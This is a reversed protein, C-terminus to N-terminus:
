LLELDDPTSYQFACSLKFLVQGYKFKLVINSSNTCLISYPFYQPFCIFIVKKLEFKNFHEFYCYIIYISSYVSFVELNVIINSSDLWVLYKVFVIYTLLILCINNNLEKISQPLFM